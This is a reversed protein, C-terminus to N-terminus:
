YWLIGYGKECCRDRSHGLDAVRCCILMHNGRRSLLWSGPATLIFLGQEWGSAVPTLFPPLLHMCYQRRFLHVLSELGAVRGPDRVLMGIREKELANPPSSSSLSLLSNLDRAVGVGLESKKVAMGVWVAVGEAGQYIGRMKSIQAGREVVDNQNICVADAWIVLPKGEKPRLRQLARWLNQTM